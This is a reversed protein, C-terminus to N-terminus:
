WNQIFLLLILLLLRNFTLTYRKTSLTMKLISQRASRGHKWPIGGPYSQLLNNVLTEIRDTMYYIATFQSMLWFLCCVCDLWNNDIVRRVQFLSSTGTWTGGLVCSIKRKFKRCIIILIINTHCIHCHLISQQSHIYNLFLTCFYNKDHILSRRCQASEGLWLYGTM